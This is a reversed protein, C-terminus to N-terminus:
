SLGSVADLAGGAVGEAVEAIEGAIEGALGPLRSGPDTAWGPRGM